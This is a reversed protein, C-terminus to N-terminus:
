DGQKNPVISFLYNVSSSRAIDGPTVYYDSMFPVLDLFYKRYFYAILTSCVMKKPESDQNDKTVEFRYFPLLSKIMNIIITYGYKKGIIKKIDKTILRSVLRSFNYQKVDIYGARTLYLSTVIPSVRFVDIQEGSNVEKILDTIRSGVFEKFELGKVEEDEITAVAAHSYISKSYKCIMWSVFSGKKGRYLLIDAENILKIADSLCIEIKEM